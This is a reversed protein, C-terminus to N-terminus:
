STTNRYTLSRPEGGCADVLLQALPCIVPLRLACGVLAWGAHVHELARALAAVGSASYSGDGAEYTIRTLGRSAHGEAPLIALGSVGRGEFWRGVESCMGCSEAVFLRAPPKGSSHWPRMRPIWSRVRSRYEDWAPGFRHRLDEGEDWGALGSSYIHAMVGGIAIWFNQLVVGLVLLLVVASLQMPNRVYAYAGTTVLRRPPDFPVPTGGGRTVFEQVASLGVVAPLALVQIILSIQWNPFALPNTWGTGAGEIVSAPLLFMMLAAFTIVQLTAREALREGKMTWRALLQGPSVGIALGIAEGALWGPGLQLVPSMRPMLLLDFVLGGAAVIGIRFEAFGLAPLMGWLWAWALLLDIPVGLLLGGRADFTWWGYRLAAVNLALLVPVNWLTALLGGSWHRAAPRGFVWLALTLIVTVYLSGARVILHPDGIMM